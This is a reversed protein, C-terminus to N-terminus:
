DRLGLKKLKPRIIFQCYPQNRNERYYDDHSDPAPYFEGAPAIQTVVPKTWEGSAELAAKSAEAAAKQADDHYFIVSRYQDGVDNGQRDLQTPDHARWFWDLLDEYRIRAPDFRVQVVEAHGTGGRCVQDYTPNKVHGGMFGSEASVVGDVQQFVAEICWYCGGGFTATATSM